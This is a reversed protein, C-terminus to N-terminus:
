QPKKNIDNMNIANPVDLKISKNEFTLEEDVFKTSDYFRPKEEKIEIHKKTEEEPLTFELSNEPKSRDIIVDKNIKNEISPDYGKYILTPSSNRKSKIVILIIILIVIFLLIGGFVLIIHMVNLIPFSFYIEENEFSSLNWTLTKNGNSKSTANDSISSYPLNVVFTLEEELALNAIENLESMDNEIYELNEDESFEDNNDEIDLIDLYNDYESKNFKYKASYTDKFFNKTVSFLNHNKDASEYINNLEVEENHNKSVDDINSIKKSLVYGTYGNKSVDKVDLGSKEFEEKNLINPNIENIKDSILIETELTMSKDKNISMTNKSKVCGSLLLIIIFVILFKKVIKM